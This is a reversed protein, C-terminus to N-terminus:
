QGPSQCAQRFRDLEVAQEESLFPDVISFLECLRKTRRLRGDATQPAESRALTELQAEAELAQSHNTLLINWLWCSERWGKLTEAQEVTLFPAVIRLLDCIRKKRGLFGDATQAPESQVLGKLETAAELAQSADPRRSTTPEQRETVRSVGSQTRAKRHQSVLAHITDRILRAKSVELELWSLHETYTATVQETKVGPSDNDFTISGHPLRVVQSLEAPTMRSYLRRLSACREESRAVYDDLKSLANELASQNTSNLAPSSLPDVNQPANPRDQAADDSPETAGFTTPSNGAAESTQLWGARWVWIAGVLLALCFGAASLRLTSAL